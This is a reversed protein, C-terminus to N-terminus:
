GISALFFPVTWFASLRAPERLPLLTLLKSLDSAIAMPTVSLVFRTLRQMRFTHRELPRPQRRLDYLLKPFQHLSAVAGFRTLLQLIALPVSAHRQKTCLLSAGLLATGAVSSSWNELLSLVYDRCSTRSDEWDVLHTVFHRYEPDIRELEEPMPVFPSRRKALLWVIPAVVVTSWFQVDLGRQLMATLRVNKTSAMILALAWPGLVFKQFDHRIPRRQAAFNDLMDRRQVQQLHDEAQLIQITQSLKEIDDYVNGVQWEYYENDDFEDDDFDDDDASALLPTPFRGLLVSLQQQQQQQPLQRPKSISRTPTPNLPRDIQLRAHCPRFAHIPALVGALLSCSYLLVSRSRHSRRKSPDSTKRLNKM